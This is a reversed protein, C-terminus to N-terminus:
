AKCPWVRAFRCDAGVAARGSRLPGLRASEIGSVDTSLVRYVPCDRPLRPSSWPAVCGGPCCAVTGVPESRPCFEMQVRTGQRGVKGPLRSGWSLLLIADASQSFILTESRSPDRALADLDALQKPQLATPEGTRRASPLRAWGRSARMRCFARLDSVSWFTTTVQVFEGPKAPHRRKSQETDPCSRAAWRGM